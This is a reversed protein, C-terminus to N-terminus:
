RRTELYAVLLRVQEATLHFDPMNVGPKITQPDTLWRALNEPTNPMRGSALTERSAFHTLDPGIAARAPTGAIAHCNICTFQDFLKAGAAADGGAPPPPIVQQAALWSQFEAPPQAVVEIRMWAHELGCYEACTGLFTGPVDAEIWFHNPHGPVADMKRGLQPVWWDHIVDASQLRVLMARDTPIHIENAVVVNAAPYQAEWWWQHATIVLDPARNGPWPDSRRMAQVTVVFLFVLLLIPPITWAIEVKTSGFNQRPLAAGPRQRYRFSAILVLSAVVVFIVALAILVIVFLHAIAQAQPSDPNLPSSPQM